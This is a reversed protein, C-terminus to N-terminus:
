MNFYKDIYVTYCMDLYTNYTDFIHGNTKFTSKVCM